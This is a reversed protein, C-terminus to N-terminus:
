APRNAEAPLLCRTFLHKGQLSKQRRAVRAIQYLSGAYGVVYHPRYRRIREIYELWRREGVDFTNLFVQNRMFLSLHSRIRREKLRLSDRESGWLWVNRVSNMEVGLFERFYYGQTANTWSAYNADQIFTVPRGTSGGSSNRFTGAPQPSSLLDDFRRRIVEKTLIHLSRLADGNSLLGAYDHYTWSSGRLLLYLRFRWARESLRM